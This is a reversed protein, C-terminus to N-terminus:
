PLVVFSSNLNTAVASFSVRKRFLTYAPLSQCCFGIIVLKVFNSRNWWFKIGPLSFYLCCKRIKESENVVWAPTVRARTKSSHLNETLRYLHLLTKPLAPGAGETVSDGCDTSLFICSVLLISKLIYGSYSSKFKKLDEKGKHVTITVLEVKCVPPRQPLFHHLKEQDNWIEM